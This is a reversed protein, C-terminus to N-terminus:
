WSCLRHFCRSKIWELAVKHIVGWNSSGLANLYSELIVSNDLFWSLNGLILFTYTESSVHATKRYVTTYHLPSTNVEIISVIIPKEYGFIGLHPLKKCQAVNWLNTGSFFIYLQHVTRTTKRNGCDLCSLSKLNKSIKKLSTFYIKLVNLKKTHIEKYM